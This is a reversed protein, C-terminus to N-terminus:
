YAGNMTGNNTLSLTGAAMYVARGAAGGVSGASGASGNTYNGNAGSGGSNGTGGVAGWTGGTGGTGGSGGAGANTGGNSGAGGASGTTATLGYGQGRGGAGGSGGVGGNTYTTSTSTGSRSVEYTFFAPASFVPYGCVAGAPGGGKKAGRIYTYSGITMTTSNQLASSTSLLSGAWYLKDWGPCIARGSWMYSNASYYPGETVTSTTTASGQGGTGGSGGAGGGGGGGRVAGNNILTFSSSATIANGGAGGGATGSLGQIEGNNEVTLTGALGTPIVTPGLTVGSPVIVRKPVDTAWNTGFLTQVDLSAVNSVTAVIENVAGYFSGMTILGSAAVNANNNPVRGGNRYYEDLGIPIEGGFENQIDLLSLPGSTKVAM